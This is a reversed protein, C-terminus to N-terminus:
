FRDEMYQFAQAKGRIVAWADKVKFLFSDRIIPKCIFWGIRGWYDQQKFFWSYDKLTQQPESKILDDILIM